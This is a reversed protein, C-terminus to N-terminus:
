NRDSPLISDIEIFVGNAYIVMLVSDTDILANEEAPFSNYRQAKRSTIYFLIYIRAPPSNKDNNNPM